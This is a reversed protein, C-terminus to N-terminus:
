STFRYPDEMIENYGLYRAFYDLIGMMAIPGCGGYSSAVGTNIIAQQIESKPFNIGQMNIPIASSVDKTSTYNDQYWTYDSYKSVLHESINIISRTLDFGSSSTLAISENSDDNALDDIANSDVESASDANAYISVGSNVM